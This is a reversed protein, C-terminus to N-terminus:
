IRLVRNRLFLPFLASLCVVTYPTTATSNLISSFLRGFAKILKKIVQQQTVTTVIEAEFSLMNDVYTSRRKHLRIQEFVSAPDEVSDINCCYWVPTIFVRSILLLILIIYRSKSKM